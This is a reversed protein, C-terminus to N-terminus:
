GRKYDYRYGIAARFHEIAIEFYRKSFVPTGLSHVSEGYVGYLRDVNADHESRLGNRMGKRVMARQKRPIAELNREVSSEIQKRFSAYLDSLSRWDSQNATCGRFELVPFGATGAILFYGSKL